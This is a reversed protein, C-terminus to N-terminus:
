PVHCLYFSERSLPTASPGTLSAMYGFTVAEASAATKNAALHHVCVTICQSFVTTVRHSLHLTQTALFAICDLAANESWFSAAVCTARRSDLVRGKTTCGADTGSFTQHCEINPRFDRPAPPSHRLCQVQILIISTRWVSNCCFCEQNNTTGFQM